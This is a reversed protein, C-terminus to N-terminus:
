KEQEAGGVEAEGMLGQSTASGPQEGEAFANGKKENKSGSESEEQKREQGSKEGASRADSAEVSEMTWHKFTVSGAQGGVSPSLSKEAELVL